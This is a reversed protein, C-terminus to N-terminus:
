HVLRLEFRYPGRHIIVSNSRIQDITFGNLEQNERLLENNILCVPALESQMVSQLTMARADAIAEAREQEAANVSIIPARSAKFPNIKLGPTEAPRTTPPSKITDVVQETHQMLQQYENIDTSGFTMLLEPPADPVPTSIAASVAALQPSVKAFRIVQIGVAILAIAVLLANAGSPRKSRNTLRTKKM